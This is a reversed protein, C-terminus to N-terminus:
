IYLDLQGGALLFLGPAQGPDASINSALRFGLPSQVKARSIGARAASVIGEGSWLERQNGASLPALRVASPTRDVRYPQAKIGDSAVAPGSAVASELNGALGSIVHLHAHEQSQHAWRGFNSLMRFGDVSHAEGVDLGLRGAVPLLASTWFEEQTIHARPVVLLMVDAWKLRNHFVVLDASPDNRVWTAPSSGAVIQCFVCDTGGAGNM